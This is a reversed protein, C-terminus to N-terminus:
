RASWRWRRPLPRRVSSPARVAEHLALGNPDQLQVVVLANTKAMGQQGRLDLRLEVRPPPSREMATERLEDAVGLLARPMESQARVPRRGPDGVLELSSRSGRGRTACRPRGGLQGLKRERERRGRSAVADEEAALQERGVMVVRAAVHLPQTRDELRQELLQWRTNLARAHQSPESLGREVVELSRLSEELLREELGLGIARNLASITM